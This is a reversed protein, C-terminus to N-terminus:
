YEVCPHYPLRPAHYLSVLRAQVSVEAYAPDFSTPAANFKTFKQDQSQVEGSFLALFVLLASWTARGAM